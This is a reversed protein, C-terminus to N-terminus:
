RGRMFPNGFENRRRPKQEKLPSEQFYLVDDFELITPVGNEMETVEVEIKM